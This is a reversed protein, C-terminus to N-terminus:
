QNGPLPPLGPPLGGNGSTPLQGLPAGGPGLGLAALFSSLDLQGGGGGGGQVSGLLQALGQLSQQQTGALGERAPGSILQSLLPSLVGGGIASGLTGIINGRRQERAQREAAERAERAQQQQFEQFQAIRRQQEEQQQRLLDQQTAAGLLAQQQTQQARSFLEAEQAGSLGRTQAFQGARLFQQGLRPALQQQLLSLGATSAADPRGQQSELHPM